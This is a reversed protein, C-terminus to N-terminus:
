IYVEVRYLLIFKRNDTIEFFNKAILSVKNELFKIKIRDNFGRINIKKVEYNDNDKM